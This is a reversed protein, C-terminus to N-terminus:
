PGIGRSFRLWIHPALSPILTLKTRVPCLTALTGVRLDNGRLDLTRLSGLRPLSDLARVKDLLAASPGQTYSRGPTARAGNGKAASTAKDLTTSVGNATVATVGGRVSTTIVVNGLTPSGPTPTNASATPKGRRSRPVYPTYTTQMPQLSPHTPPPLIPGAHPQVSPPVPQQPTMSSTLPLSIVSSAPSSTSSSTPTGTASGILTSSAQSSTPSLLLSSINAQSSLTPSSPSGLPGTAPISDPYDRIMVSLAIAGTANIKNHRM